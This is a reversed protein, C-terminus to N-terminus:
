SARPKRRSATRPKKRAMKRSVSGSETRTKKEGDPSGAGPAAAVELYQNQLRHKETQYDEDSIKGAGHSLELESMAELLADPERYEEDPLDATVYSELSGFVLPYAVVAAALLLLLVALVFVAM